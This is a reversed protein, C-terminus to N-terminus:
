LFVSGLDTKRKEGRLIYYNKSFNEFLGKNSKDARKEKV